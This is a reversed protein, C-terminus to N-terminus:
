RAGARREDRGFGSGYEAMDMGYMRSAARTQDGAGRDQDTYGYCCEVGDATFPRGLRRVTESKTSGDKKTVKLMLARVTVGNGAVDGLRLSGVQFEAVPGFVVWEGSKTKRYSLSM